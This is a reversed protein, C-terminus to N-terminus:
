FQSKICKVHSLGGTSTSPPRALTDRSIQLPRNQLPAQWYQGAGPLAVPYCVAEDDGDAYDIPEGNDYICRHKREHDDAM